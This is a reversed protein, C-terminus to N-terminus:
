TVCSLCDQKVCKKLECVTHKWRQTVNKSHFKNDSGFMQLVFPPIAEDLPQAMVLYLVTSKSKLLHQKITEADTAAFSLTKPCGTSKDTPPVIGILQNTFPDYVVKSIIATADESIWVYKTCNMQNLYESLEKARLKSEVIRSKNNDICRVILANLRIIIIIFSTVFKFDILFSKCITKTSPMPLNSRLMEYCFRGCVLFIYTSFYRISDPYRLGNKDKLLNSEATAIMQELIFSFRGCQETKRLRISEMYKEIYKPLALLITEHGPLFQFTSQTQYHLSYCCSLENIYDKLNENIFYEIKPIISENIEKLSIFNNYGCRFLLGKVCSPYEEGIFNEFGSWDLSKKLFIIKYYKHVFISFYTQNVM